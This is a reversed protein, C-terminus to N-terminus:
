KLYITNEKGANNSVSVAISNVDDKADIQTQYILVLEMSSNAPIKGDYTNLADSLLTLQANYKKSDNVIGKYMKENAMFNVDIDNSTTNTIRFKLVLLKSDGVAKMVFVSDTNDNPYADTIDYDLYQATIGAPLEFAEAIASSNSIEGGSITGSSGEQEQGSGNNDGSTTEEQPLIEERYFTTSETPKKNSVSDIYNYKYVEDHKLVVEAAYNAIVDEQENTYDVSGMCGTVSIAGILIIMLCNLQKPYRFRRM